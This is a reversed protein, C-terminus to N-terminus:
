VGSLLRGIIGGIVAYIILAILSTWDFVSHVVVGAGTTVAHQNFISEFPAVLPASWTYIWNVFASAPNAGLLLFAFRLGVIVEILGTIAYVIAGLM